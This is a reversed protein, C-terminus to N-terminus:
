NMSVAKVRRGVDPTLAELELDLKMDLNLDILRLRTTGKLNLEQKRMYISSYFFRIGVYHNLLLTDLLHQRGSFFVSRYGLNLYSDM